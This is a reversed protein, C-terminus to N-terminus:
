ADWRETKTGGRRTRLGELEAQAGAERDSQIAWVTCRVGVFFGVLAAFFVSGVYVFIM